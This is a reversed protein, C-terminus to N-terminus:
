ITGGDFTFAVGGKRQQVSEKGSAGENFDRVVHVRGNLQRSAKRFFVGFPEAAATEVQQVHRQREFEFTFGEQGGVSDLASQGARFPQVDGDALVFLRTAASTLGRRCGAQNILKAGVSM